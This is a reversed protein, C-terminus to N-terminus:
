EISVVNPKFRHSLKQTGSSHWGLPVVDHGIAMEVLIPLAIHLGPEVLRCALDTAALVPNLFSSPDGRAREASQAGDDGAWGVFVVHLLPSAPAESELFQLGGSQALFEGLGDPDGNVM